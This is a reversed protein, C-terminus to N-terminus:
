TVAMTFPHPRVKFRNAGDENYFFGATADYLYAAWDGALDLDGSAFTYTATFTSISTADKIISGGTPKIFYFDVNRGTLDQDATITIDVGVDGVTYDGREIKMINM